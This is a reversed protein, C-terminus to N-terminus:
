LGILNVYPEFRAFDKLNMTVIAGVSHALMTAVINADHVQKGGGAIDGLLSLLRTVVKASDALMTTQRQFVRVNDIAMPLSLGLGNHEYPRTAVSLYERLVQGSTYLNVGLGPWDSTVRLAERHEPRTPDTSAILVNADLMVDAPMQELDATTTAM